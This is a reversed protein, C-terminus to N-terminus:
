SKLRLKLTATTTETGVIHRRGDATTVVLNFEARLNLKVQKGRNGRASPDIRLRSIPTPDVRPRGKQDPQASPFGGLNGLQTTCPELTLLDTPDEATTWLALHRRDISAMDLTANHGFNNPLSSLNSSCGGSTGDTLAGSAHGSLTGKVPRIPFSFAPSGPPALRRLTTFPFSVEPGHGLYHWRETIEGVASRFGQYAFPVSELTWVIKGSAQVVSWNTQAPAPRAAASPSATVGAVALCLTVAARSALRFRV